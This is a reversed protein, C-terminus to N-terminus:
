VIDDVEAFPSDGIDGRLVSLESLLATDARMSCPEGPQVALPPVHSRLPDLATSSTAAMGRRASQRRPPSLGHRAPDRPPLGLPDGHPSARAAPPRAPSAAFLQSAPAHDASSHLPGQREARGREEYLSQLMLQSAALRDEMASAPSVSAMALSAAHQTLEASGFMSCGVSTRGTVGWNSGLLGADPLMRRGALGALATSQQHWMGPHDWPNINISCLMQKAAADPEWHPYTAAFSLLSKEMKGQRSRSGKPCHVPSGYKSNGHKQVDFAALSCIDGVGDVHVSFDRVFHLIAAACGPLSFYLVFPTLLISAMEELFLLAKFQFLGQFQEQVERTHARGRWHRPLYHTHAVVELLAMEPEFATGAEQIFARSIALVVGVLALWWVLNRGYLPRELLVEDMLTLFLLLAAFSGAIFAVFKAVHSLAPSPFQTIYREAAKHSANLRHHIYHPLENFERLRWAALPSWRRAGVSSPHNYFKEANRLFFYILLFVLLFPSVLLNCIAMRRFRRQLAAEDRMFHPRVRFSDDFMCDLICWHLNWELTKTLMFRKRMGPVAIHLALVGQNLMGILYNEKRMIRSVVDHETYDRSMCYRVSSQAEVIRRAVEPWTVTRLQRESLGLKHTTFHHIDVAARVDMAAHVLNYLWYASFIALYIVCLGSWLTVGAALPQSDIAVQTIDCTNELICESRLAHWKVFLLLFGSFVVTFGLALLNLVRSTVICLFGKEEYYKHVRTFFQDLNPQVAWEYTESGLLEPTTLEEEALSPLAEYAFDGPPADESARRM